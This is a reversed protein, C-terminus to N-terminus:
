ELPEGIRAFPQDPYALKTARDRPIGLKELWYAEAQRMVKAKAPEKDDLGVLHLTGHVVYLLLEEHPETGYDAANTLATEASVVIEGELPEGEESLPFSLVDTPYDHGLYERNLSQMQDDGVIVLSLIATEWGADTLVLGCAHAMAQQDIVLQQQRNSIAIHPM